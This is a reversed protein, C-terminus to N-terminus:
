LQRSALSDFVPTNQCNNVNQCIAFFLLIALFATYGRRTLNKKSVPILVDSASLNALDLICLEMYILYISSWEGLKRESCKSQGFDGVLPLHGPELKFDKM